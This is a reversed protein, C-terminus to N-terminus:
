PWDRRWGSDRDRRILDSADESVFGIRERILRAENVLKERNTSAADNLINRVVQELSMSERLAKEKLRELVADEIDEIVIRGM